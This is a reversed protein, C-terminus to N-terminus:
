SLTGSLVTTLIVSQFQKAVEQNLSCKGLLNLPAPAVKRKCVALRDGFCRLNYLVQM